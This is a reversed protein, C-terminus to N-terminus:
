LKYKRMYTKVEEYIDEVSPEILIPAHSTDDQCTYLRYRIPRIMGQTSYFNELKDWTPLAFYEMSRSEAFICM